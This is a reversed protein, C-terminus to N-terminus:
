YTKNAIVFCLYSFIYRKKFNRHSFYKIIKNKKFIPRQCNQAFNLYLHFIDFYLGM